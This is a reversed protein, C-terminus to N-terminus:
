KSILGEESLKIGEWGVCDTMIQQLKIDCHAAPAPNEDKQGGWAATGKPCFHLPHYAAIPGGRGACM